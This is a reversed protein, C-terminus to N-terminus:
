AVMWIICTGAYVWYPIMLRKLRNRLTLAYGDRALSPALLAGSALFMAPMAGFWSLPAWGWTHWAIVRLVAIAKISDWLGDRKSTGTAPLSTLNSGDALVPGQAAM